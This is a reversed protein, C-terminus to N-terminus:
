GDTTNFLNVPDSVVPFFPIKKYKYVRRAFEFNVIYCLECIRKM